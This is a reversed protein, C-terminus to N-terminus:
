RARLAELREGTAPHSSLYDVWHREGTREGQDRAMKELADALLAPSKGNARLLEAAYDDAESEFGRSYRAQLLAAPATALLGSVDGFWWIAVIGVLTGQLLHRVGHRHQVHGLEHGLVAYIEDDTCLEVLDDLVVVTGDPLAFANPGIDSSAFRVEIAATGAPRVLADFGARLRERRDVDLESDDLLSRELSDLTRRSLETAVAPPLAEALHQAAWPLGFVYGAVIIAVMLVASGVAVGVSRQWREVAAPRHGLAALLADLAAHDRVECYAGDGFRLLRPASGLREGVDVEALPAAREVDDGRVVLRAGDAYLRVERRRSTQGDYFQAAVSM